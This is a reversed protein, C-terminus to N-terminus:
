SFLAEMQYIFFTAPIGELVVPAQSTSISQEAYYIWCKRSGANAAQAGAPESAPGYNANTLNGQFQTPSVLTVTVVLGNLFTANTFGTLYISMGQTIGNIPGVITVVNNLVTVSTANNIVIQAPNAEIKQISSIQIFVERDVQNTVPDPRYLWFATQITTNTQFGHQSAM